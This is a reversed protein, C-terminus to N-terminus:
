PRCAKPRRRPSRARSELFRALVAQRDAPPHSEDREWRYLTVRGVGLVQGAGEQSLGLELRRQRIREGLTMPELAGIPPSRRWRTLDFYSPPPGLRGVKGDLEELVAAIRATM